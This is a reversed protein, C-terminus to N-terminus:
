LIWEGGRDILWAGSGLWSEGKDVRALDDAYAHRLQSLFDLWNALLLEYSAHAYLDLQSQQRNVQHCM